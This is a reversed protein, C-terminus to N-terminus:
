GIERKIFGMTYGFLQKEWEYGRFTHDADEIYHVEGREGFLAKYKEAVEWPVTEDGKGHIIVAKGGYKATQEMINLSMVDKVFEEGILIGGADMPNKNGGEKKVREMNKVLLDRMEGAAAWLILGRVEEGRLGAVYGAVTGGMSLGLLFVRSPDIFDQGKFFDLIAKADEIEGSLTMRDFEGESEGSGWFDFRVSAIGEKLLMRSFRVFVFNPEMRNGTFGHYLIVGPVRNTGSAGEPVHIMGRLLGNRSKLEVYKEM